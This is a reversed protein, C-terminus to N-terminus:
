TINFYKKNKDNFISGVPQEASVFLSDKYQYKLVEEFTGVFDDPDCHVENNNSWIWRGSYTAVYIMLEYLLELDQHKEFYALGGLLGLRGLKSGDNDHNSYKYPLLELREFNLGLKVFADPVNKIAVPEKIRQVKPNMSLCTKGYDTFFSYRKRLANMVKRNLAYKKEPQVGKPRFIDEVKTLIMNGVFPYGEGKTNIFYWKGQCSEIRGIDTALTYTVFGFLTPGKWYNFYLGIDGNSFFEIIKRESINCSYAYEYVGLPENPHEVSILSKKIHYWSFRRKEGLPRVDELRGRIPVVTDFRHKAEEYNAIPKIRASNYMSTAYTQAM